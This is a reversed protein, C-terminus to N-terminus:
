NLGLDKAVTYACVKMMQDKVKNYNEVALPKGVDWNALDRYIPRVFKMRFNSNAFEFIEDFRTLRAKIFLRMLRFRIEANRTISKSFGYTEILLDVKEATLDVIESKGLLQSLFEIKQISTLSERIVPSSKIDATTSSSWLDAHKKSTDYVVTNYKPIVIPMGESYLWKDWDVVELKEPYKENFYDYFFKQFDKTLISEYKFKTLYSRLFPEFIEPGGLLDELYRLFTSGKMYPVSSFADDPSVNSLDVVLKTLEPQNALQNKITDEM